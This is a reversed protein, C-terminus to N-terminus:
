KQKFKNIAKKCIWKIYENHLGKEIATAITNENKMKDM